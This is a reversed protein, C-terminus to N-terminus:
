VEKRELIAVREELSLPRKGLPYWTGTGKCADCPTSFCEDMSYGLNSLEGTGKCKLCTRGSDTKDTM